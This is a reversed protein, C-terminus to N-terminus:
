RLYPLLIKFQEERAYQKIKELNGRYSITGTQKWETFYQRIIDVFAAATSPCHGAECDEIIQQMIDGDGPMQIIPKRLGMYEFAKTGPVGKMETFGQVLCLQSSAAEKQALLQAMREKLILQTAPIAHQLKTTIGPSTGTGIFQMFIERSFEQQYLLRCGDLLKDLDDNDYVSGILTIYFQDHPKENVQLLQEQFGNLLTITEVGSKQKIYKTTLPSITFILRAAKMWKTSHYVSLRFKIKELLGLKPATHLLVHNQFDRVDVLLPIRFEHHLEWGLKLVNLPPISVLVFDFQQQKALNRIDSAFQYYNVEGHLKGSLQNILTQVMTKIGAKSVPTAAYPMRYVTIGDENTVSLPTANGSLMDQWSQEKGTWHRTVVTVEFDYKTLERAFANPRNAAVYTCPQYYYALLLVKKPM